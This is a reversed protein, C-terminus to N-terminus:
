EKFDATLNWLKLIERIIDDMRMDAKYHVTCYTDHKGNAKWNKREFINELYFNQTYGLDLINNYLSLTEQYSRPNGLNARLVLPFWTSKKGKPVVFNYDKKKRNQNLNKLEYLFSSYKNLNQIEVGDEQAHIRFSYSNMYVGM